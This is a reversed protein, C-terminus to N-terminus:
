ATSEGEQEGAPAGAAIPLEFWFLSGGGRHEDVGVRGQHAEITTKVVHLGLGIGYQEGQDGHLRVFRRFLREREAPPIGPGRDAVGIRLRGERPSVDLEITADDPSYKSANGLLNVLVQTLRAADGMLAPLFAPETLSLTQGRRELLPQVVQVAAAIVQNLDLSRRRVVFHGAEIRSSELLNEILTQLSLLSLHIPRLLERMEEPSLDAENTLLEMSANAASLPTRFEHTINALFYARLHRLSEEQTIDRLVLATQAEDGGAAKLRTATVEFVSPAPASEAVNRGLRRVVREGPLRLTPAGEGTAPAPRTAEASQAALTVRQKRGLPLRHLSTPNGSEDAVAFLDDVHRGGAADVAIGALAAARENIFTVRGTEDLTVVGEVISQVLSNLWASAQALDDLARLMSLQSRQLASALTRVERPGPLLPVPSALEGASIAEASRTLQALPYTLRRVTWIGLLMGLLAVVGTSLVLVGRARRQTAFLEEVPLAAETLLVVGDDRGHLPAYASFYRSGGAHLLRRGGRAASPGSAAASDPAAALFAAGLSSVLRVGDPRLLSQVVGTDSALQRLFAEDLWRGAVVVAVQATAADMGAVPRAALLAARDQYLFYDAAGPTPCVGDPGAQGVIMGADSCLYLIDLDGQVQFAALYLGLDDLNAETLLSRLTPRETLLALLNDLRAQEAQLLSATAQEASAVHLWTQRQLETRTLWYAPVGASLTTLLVLAFISVVLRAPYGRLDFLSKM